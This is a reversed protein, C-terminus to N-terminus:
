KTVSSDIVTFSMELCHILVRCMAWCEGKTPLPLLPPAVPTTPIARQQSTPTPHGNASLPPHTPTWNDILHVDHVCHRMSRLEEKNPPSLLPPTTPVLCETSGNTNPSQQCHTPTPYPDLWWCSMAHMENVELEGQQSPYTLTLHHSCGWTSNNPLPPWWPPHNTM